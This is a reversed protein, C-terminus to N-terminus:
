KQRVLIRWKYIKSKSAPIKVIKVDRVDAYTKFKKKRKEADKKTKFVGEPNWSKLVMGFQIM